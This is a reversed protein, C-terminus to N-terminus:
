SGRTIVEGPSVELIADAMRTKVAEGGFAALCRSQHIRDRNPSPDGSPDIKLAAALIGRAMVGGFFHVNNELKQIHEQRVSWGSKCEVIILRLGDTVVVDFEQKGPGSTDEPGDMNWAPRLGIRIDEVGDDRLQKRLLLYCYEEFWGGAVYQLFDPWEVEVDVVRNGGQECVLRGTGGKWEITMAQQKSKYRATTNLSGGNEIVNVIDTYTKAICRRFKWLTRTVDTRGERDTVDEWYGPDTLDHGALRIFDEVELSGRLTERRWEGGFWQIVEGETNVYFARAGTELAHHLSAIAM